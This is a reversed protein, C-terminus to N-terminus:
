EKAKPHNMSCRTQLVAVAEALKHTAESQKTLDERIGKFACELRDALKDLKADIWRPLQVVIGIGALLLMLFAIVVSIVALVPTM